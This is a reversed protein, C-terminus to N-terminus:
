ASGSGDADSDPGPGADPDPGAEPDPTTESDAADAPSRDDLTITVQRGHPTLGALRAEIREYVTEALEQDGDGEQATHRLEHLSILLAILSRGSLAVRIREDGEAAVQPPVRFHRHGGAQATIFEWIDRNCLLDVSSVRAAEKLLATHEKSVVAAEPEEAPRPRLEDLETHLATTSERLATTSEDLGTRLGATSERLAALEDRTEERDAAAQDRLGTVLGRLETVAEDLQAGIADQLAAQEKSKEDPDTPSNLLPALEEALVERVLQQITEATLAAAGPSADQGDEPAPDAAPSADPAAADEPEEAPTPEPPADPTSAPPAAVADDTAEMSSAPGATRQEPVANLLARAHETGDPSPTVVTSYRAAPGVTPASTVTEALAALTSQVGVLVTHLKELEQATTEQRNESPRLLLLDKTDKLARTMATLERVMGQHATANATKVDDLGRDLSESLTTGTHLMAQHLMTLGSSADEGEPGKKRYNM